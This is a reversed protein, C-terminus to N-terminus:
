HGFDDAGDPSWRPRSITRALKTESVAEWGDCATANATQYVIAQAGASRAGGLRGVAVPRSRDFRRRGSPCPSVLAKASGSSFFLADGNASWRPLLNREGKERTLQQIDRGGIKITFVHIGADTEHFFAIRDGEPSFRPGSMLSRRETLVREGARPWM